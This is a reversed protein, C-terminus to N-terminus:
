WWYILLDVSLELHQEDGDGEDDEDHDRQCPEDEVIDLSESISM